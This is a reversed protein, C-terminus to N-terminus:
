RPQAPSGGCGAPSPKLWFAATNKSTIAKTATRMRRIPSRNGITAHSSPAAWGPSSSREARFPAFTPMSLGGRPSERARGSFFRVVEEDLLKRPVDALAWLGKIESAFAFFNEGKYYFVARQGMHDRGLVLKKARGDWVAFAFDGLLHQAADAGWKKYARLVLAGDPMDRLEATGIGFIGALEERNDIRCDAALTLNAARDRIPQAEFLDEQNVRMLRHGLGVAGDVAFKCGEPGRHALVNAMRELDRASVSGGDYRMIGFIASM